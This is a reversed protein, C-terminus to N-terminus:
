IDIVWEFFLNSRHSASILGRKEVTIANSIEFGNINFGPHYPSLLDDKYLFCSAIGRKSLECAVLAYLKLYFNSELQNFIFLYESNSIDVPKTNKLILRTLSTDKLRNFKKVIKHMLM